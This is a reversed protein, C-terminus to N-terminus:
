QLLLVLLTIFLIFASSTISHGDSLLYVVKEPPLLTISPPVTADSVQNGSFFSAGYGGTVATNAVVNFNLITPLNSETLQPSNGLYLDYLLVMYENGTIDTQIPDFKANGETIIFYYITSGPRALLVTVDSAFTLNLLLAISRQFDEERSDQFLQDLKM